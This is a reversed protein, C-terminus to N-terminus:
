ENVWEIKQSDGTAYPQDISVHGLLTEKVEGEVLIQVQAFGFQELLLGIQEVLLGEGSSGLNANHIEQSFSIYATGNDESITEVVVDAPVLSALQDHDPGEMWAEFAAYIIEEETPATVEEKVRYNKMLDNDAFYLVVSKTIEQEPEKPDLEHETVTNGQNEENIEEGPEPDVPQEVSTGCGTIIIAPLFVGMLLKLYWKM